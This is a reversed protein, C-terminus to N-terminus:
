YPYPQSTYSTYGFTTSAPGYTCSFCGWQFLGTSTSWSVCTMMSAAGGALPIVTRQTTWAQPSPDMGRVRRWMWKTAWESWLSLSNIRLPTALRTSQNGNTEDVNECCGMDPLFRISLGSLGLEKNLIQVNKLSLSIRKAVANQFM